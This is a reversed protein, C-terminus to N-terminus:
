NRDFCRSGTNNQWRRSKRQSCREKESEDSPVQGHLNHSLNGRYSCDPMIIILSTCNSGTTNTEFDGEAINAFKPINEAWLVWSVRKRDFMWDFILGKSPLNYPGFTDRVLGGFLVWKSQKLYTGFSWIFAFIYVSAVVIIGEGDEYGGESLTLFISILTEIM